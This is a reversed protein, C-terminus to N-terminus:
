FHGTTRSHACFIRAPWEFDAVENSMLWCSSLGIGASNEFKSGRASSYHVESLFKFFVLSRPETLPCGEVPPRGVVLCPPLLHGDAVEELLVVGSDPWRPPRGPAALTHKRNYINARKVSPGTTTVVLRSTRDMEATESFFMTLAPHRRQFLM